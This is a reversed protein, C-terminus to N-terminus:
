FHYSILNSLFGNKDVELINLALAGQKGKRSSQWTLFLFRTSTKTGHDLGADREPHSTEEFRREKKGSETKGEPEDGRQRRRMGGRLFLSM